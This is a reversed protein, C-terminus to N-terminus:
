ASKKWGQDSRKPKSPEIVPSVATPEVMKEQNAAVGNLTEQSKEDNSNNEQKNKVAKVENLKSGGFVLNRLDVVAANLSAGGSGLNSAQTTLDGANTSNRQTIKDMEMMAINSQKVGQEQEKTAIAINSVAQGINALTGGMSNFVVACEESVNKGIHVRDMTDKVINTVQKTSNELLARIEDAAKGSMTALKGVEEAVVAFGKGHAGARAAEISANFSLLRTEFVIDNIVKTKSQIDSILNVLSELKENNARIEDMASTMKSIVIQGQKADAQGKESIQRSLEANHATQSLMAAMQEMSSVTEEIASAQENTSASLLKASTHIHRSVAAQSEAEKTVIDTIHRLQHSLQSILIYSALFGVVLGCITLALNITETDNGLKTGEVRSKEANKEIADGLVALKKELLEFKEAFLPLRVVAEKKKGSSVLDVIVNAEVVYQEIEPLTVNIAEKVSPEVDLTSLGEIHSRIDKSFETLEKKIEAMEGVQYGDAALFSSYVSARIGDHMMDALTMLRVAPLQTNALENIKSILGRPSKWAVAGLVLVSTLLFGTCLWMKRSIPWSRVKLM